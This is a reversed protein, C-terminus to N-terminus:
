GFDDREREKERRSIHFGHSVYSALSQLKFFPSLNLKSYKVSNKFSFNTELNKLCM